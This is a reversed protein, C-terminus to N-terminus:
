KKFCWINTKFFLEWKIYIYIYISVYKWQNVPIFLQLLAFINKSVSFYQMLSMLLWHLLLVPYSPKNYYLYFPFSILIEHWVLGVVWIKHAWTKSYLKLLLGKESCFFPMITPIKKEILTVLHIIYNKKKKIYICCFICTICIHFKIVVTDWLQTLYSPSKSFWPRIGKSDGQTFM